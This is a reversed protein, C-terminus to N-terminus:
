GVTMCPWTLMCNCGPVYSSHRTHVATCIDTVQAIGTAFCRPLSWHLGQHASVISLLLQGQNICSLIYLSHDFAEHPKQHLGNAHSMADLVIARASVCVGFAANSSQGAPVAPATVAPVTAAPVTVVPTPKGFLGKVYKTPAVSVTETAAPTEQM